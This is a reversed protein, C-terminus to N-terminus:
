EEELLAKWVEISGESRYDKRSRQSSTKVGGKTMRQGNGRRWARITSSCIFTKLWTIWSKWARITSSYIFTKLRMLKRQNNRDRYIVVRPKPIITYDEKFFYDTADWNPRELNLKTQYSEIGLQLDGVRNRIVLNKIWM